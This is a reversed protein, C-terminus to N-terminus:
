GDTWRALFRNLPKDLLVMIGYALAGIALGGVIDGVYHYGVSVRGLATLLLVVAFLWGLKPYGSRFFFLMVFFLVSAHDSPFAKEPREFFLEDAGGSSFPRDRFGYTRYFFEGVAKALVQWALFSGLFVKVAVSRDSGRNRWFLWILTLPLAYIPVTAITLFLVRVQAAAYLATTVLLDLDLLTNM